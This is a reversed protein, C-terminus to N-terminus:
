FNKRFALLNFYKRTYYNTTIKTSYETLCYWLITRRIMTFPKSCCHLFLFALFSKSYPFFLFIFSLKSWNLIICKHSSLKSILNYHLIFFFFFINILKQRCLCQSTSCCFLISTPKVTNCMLRASSKQSLLILKQLPRIWM